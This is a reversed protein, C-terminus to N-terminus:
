ASQFLVLEISGESVPVLRSLVDLLRHLIQLFVGEIAFGNVFIFVWLASKGIIIVVVLGTRRQIATPSSAAADVVPHTQRNPHSSIPQQAAHLKM